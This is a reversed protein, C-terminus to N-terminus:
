QFSSYMHFQFKRCEAGRSTGKGDTDKKGFNFIEIEPWFGHVIYLIYICTYDPTKILDVRGCGFGAPCLLDGREGGGGGGVGGGSVPGARGLRGM